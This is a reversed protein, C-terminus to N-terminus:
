GQPGGSTTSQTLTFSNGVGVQGVAAWNDGGSQTV